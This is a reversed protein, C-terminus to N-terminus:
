AAVTVKNKGALERSLYSSLSRDDDSALKDFKTYLEPALTVSVTKSGEVATTTRTKRVIDAM